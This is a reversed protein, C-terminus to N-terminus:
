PVAGPSLTAFGMEAAVVLLRQDYTVVADADIMTASALHIADLSRLANSGIRRALSVVHESMPVQQVESLALEILDAVHAPNGHDLWGRFTRSVEVWSQASSFRESPELQSVFDDLEPSHAEEIGRKVLASSDFYVRM